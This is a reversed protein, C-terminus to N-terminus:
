ADAPERPALIEVAACPDFAAAVLPAAATFAAGPLDALTRALAGQPHLMWETPAVARFRVLRACAPDTGDLAVLHVLPGRLTVVQAAGVGDGLSLAAVPPPDLAVLRRAIRQAALATELYRTGVPGLDRALPALAPPLAQPAAPDAAQGSAHPARAFGADGDLAAAVGALPPVPVDPAVPGLGLAQAQRILGALAAPHTAVWQGWAAADDAAEPAGPIVSAGIAEALRAAPRAAAALPRAHDGTALPDAFEWLAAILADLATQVLRLPVTEVPRGLLRPWDIAGHWVLRAAAEAAALLARAALTAPGAPQGSAQELATRCALGQAWGCVPLLLRVLRPVEDLPRTMLAPAIETLRHNDIRVTGDGQRQVIVRGSAPARPAAPAPM